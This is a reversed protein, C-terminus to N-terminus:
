FERLSEFMLVLAIAPFLPVAQDVTTLMPGIVVFAFMSIAITGLRVFLSTSVLRHGISAGGSQPQVFAAERTIVASLGLDTFVTFLAAITVAYSFVGWSAAGLVRATYVLVIGRLLYGVFQGIFLWFTNKAITQRFSQNQLLFNKLTTIM